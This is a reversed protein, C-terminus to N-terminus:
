DRIHENKLQRYSKKEASQFQAKALAKENIVRSTPDKDFGNFSTALSIFVTARTGNRLGVSNKGNVIEGDEKLIKLYASFRTGKGEEFVVANEMAGRYSPEAHIPAYGSVELRHYNQFITDRLQSAFTLDFNLAGLQSATLRIVMVQDPYSIFYERRMHTNGNSYTVTSVANGIDLQRRYNAVSDQDLFHLYMTGLPAYSQSFSGQVKRQLSDALAYDKAFLAARIQAIYSSAEPNMNPDVPQGSWLTIDNLYISDESIGGFVAAGMKGNGLMLTEEFYEAPKAYWMQHETQAKVMQVIGVICLLIIRFTISKM